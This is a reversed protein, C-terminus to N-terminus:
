WERRCATDRWSMLSLSEGCSGIECARPLSAERLIGGPRDEEM